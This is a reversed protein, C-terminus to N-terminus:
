SGGYSRSHNHGGFPGENPNIERGGLGQRDPVRALALDEPSAHIQELMRDLLELQESLAPRREESLARNLTDIMARLRRAIQIDEAGYFRIETFALEVFDEWNPTRFFVRLKGSGDRVEAGHLHRSGVVRLLRELQDIAVVATTPDNIAKSLAKIAIDVIIRFAFTADQELTREPGLAVWGKLRREDISDANGYWRLLPEGSAVFDGVRPVLEVIANRREAEAVLAKLNVALVIGSKGSHMITREPPPLSCQSTPGSKEAASPYVSEIVKRGADGVRWVISIPRLMRAAYDILFLFAAISTFGLLGALEMILGPRAETDLRALAGTAFLLTFIFLGVTFRIANDRLLTPAIIRPTLQGGAVQIAVLLSGFTFVTFTLALTVITELVTQAGAATWPLLPVWIIWGDLPYVVRIAILYLLLAIFPVIWLSSRVYSRLSYWRSWVMRIRAEYRGSLGVVSCRKGFSRLPGGLVLTQVPLLLAQVRLIM